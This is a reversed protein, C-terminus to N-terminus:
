ARFLTPDMRPLPEAVRVPPFAMLDLVQSRVDIGPAVEELVLGDPAVSFVARETIVKAEQGREAVNRGLPYTIEDVREVFKRVSGERGVSLFGDTTDAALGGTTFTGTFLLKRANYAIDIFGGPGPNAVGFRSVNINGARDFQALGAGGDPLQRRRHLRVALPWRDLGGSVQQRLIALWEDRCRRLSRARYHLQLAAPRRRRVPRRGDDGHARRVFRRLRLHQGRRAQGGRGRAPRDGKDAGPPLRDSTRGDFLQGGLYADDYRVNTTMM